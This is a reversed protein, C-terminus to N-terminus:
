KGRGMARGIAAGETRTIGITEAIKAATELM